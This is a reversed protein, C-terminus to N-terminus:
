RILAAQDDDVLGGHHACGFQLGQEGRGGRRAGLGHQDAVGVLQGRDFGAPAHELVEAGLQGPRLPKGFHPADAVRPVRRRAPMASRRPLRSRLATPQYQLWSRRHVPSGMVIAMSLM